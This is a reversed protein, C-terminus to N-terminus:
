KVAPTTTTGVENKITENIIPTKEIVQTIINQTESLKTIVSSFDKKDLLNKASEIVEKAELPKASMELIAAKLTTSTATTGTATVVPNNPVSIRNLDSVSTSTSIKNVEIIAVDVTLESNKIRDTLRQTLEKDTVVPNGTKADKNASQNVMVSLASSGAEETKAIAEKVDKAVEKKVEISLSAHAGVIDKEIKLTKEDVVKATNITASNNASLAMKEMTNKVANVDETIQKVTTSIKESKTKDDVPQRAIQHLEDGRRSVFDMKLKVKGEDGITTAIQIKESLVKIPYLAEGPLSAKAALTVASYGFYLGFVMLALMTPRVVKVAFLQSFYEYYYKSSQVELQKNQPNIQHMLIGRNTSVWSANPRGVSEIDKIKKLNKIITKSM